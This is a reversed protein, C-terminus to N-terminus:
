FKLCGPCIWGSPWRGLGFCSKHFWRIPCDDGTCLVMDNKDWGRTCVCLCLSEQSNPDRPCSERNTPTAPISTLAATEPEPPAAVPTAIPATTTVPQLTDGEDDFADLDIVEVEQVHIQKEIKLLTPPPPIPTKTNGEDDLADLDIIEVGGVGTKVVQPPPAPPPTHLLPSPMRPSNSSLIFEIGAMENEIDPSIKRAMAELSSSLSWNKMGGKIVVTAALLTNTDILSAQLKILCHKWFEMFLPINGALVKGYKKAFRYISAGIQCDALLQEEHMHRNWLKMFEKEIASPGEFEKIAEEHKQILWDEDIDEDSDSLVEGEDIFRHSQIRMFVKKDNTYLAKPTVIRKRPKKPIEVISEWEVIRNELISQLGARARKRSMPIISGLWRWDGKLFKELDFQVRPKVWPLAIPDPEDNYVRGTGDYSDIGIEIHEDFKTGNYIFGSTASQGMTKNIRFHLMGHSTLLHFHLYNINCFDLGDCFPCTYGPVCFAFKESQSRGTLHNRHPGGDGLALVYYSIVIKTQKLKEDFSLIPKQIIPKPVSITPKELPPKSWRHVIEMCFNTPIRRNEVLELRYKSTAPMVAKQSWVITGLGTQLCDKWMKPLSASRGVSDVLRLNVDFQYKEALDFVRESDRETIVKLQSLRIYFPDDMEVAATNHGYFVTALQNFHLLQTWTTGQLYTIKLEVRCRSSSFHDGSRVARRLNALGQLHENDVFAGLTGRSRDTSWAQPDDPFRALSTVDFKLMPDSKITTQPRTLGNAIEDISKKAKQHRTHRSRNLVTTENLRPRSAERDGRVAENEELVVKLNRHLFSPLRHRGCYLYFLITGLCRRKANDSLYVDATPDRNPM